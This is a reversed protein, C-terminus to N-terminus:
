VQWIYGLFKASKRSKYYSVDLYSKMYFDYMLELNM